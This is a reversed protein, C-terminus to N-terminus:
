ELFEEMNLKKLTETKPHGDEDWGMVEYWKKIMPELSDEISIGANPGDPCAELLRQSITDM